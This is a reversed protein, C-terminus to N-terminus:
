VERSRTWFGGEESRKEDCVEFGAIEFEVFLSEVVVLKVKGVIWVVMKLIAGQYSKGSRGQKGRAVTEVMGCIGHWMDGRLYRRRLMQVDGGWDGGCNVVVENWL